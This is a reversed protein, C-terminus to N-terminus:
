VPRSARALRHPASATGALAACAVVEVVAATAGPSSAYAFVSPLMKVALDSPVPAARRIAAALAGSTEGSPLRIANWRYAAPCVVSQTALASPLPCRCSAWSAYPDLQDGSPCDRAAQRPLETTTTVTPVPSTLGCHLGSPVRIAAHDPPLKSCGACATCRGSPELRTTRGSTGVPGHDGSPLLKRNTSGGPPPSNRTLTSVPARSLM